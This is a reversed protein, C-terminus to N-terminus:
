LHLNCSISIQDVNTNSNLELCWSIFEGIERCNIGNGTWSERSRSLPTDLRDPKILTTKFKVINEKFAKSCQLSAHDLATKSIRYTEFRPEPTVISESAISGINFIWGAKGKEKWADYLALLLKTQGFNAWEEQPPGDFANNVFIDYELSLDVIEKISGPISIDYGMERSISHTEFSFANFQEVIEKGLGRNGGTVIMKM